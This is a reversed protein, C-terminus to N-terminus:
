QHGVQAFTLNHAKAHTHNNFKNHLSQVLDPASRSSLLTVNRELPLVAPDVRRGSGHSLLRNVQPSWLIIVYHHCLSSM